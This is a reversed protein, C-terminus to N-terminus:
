AGRLNLYLISNHNKQIHGVWIQVAHTGSELDITSNNKTNYFVTRSEKARHM